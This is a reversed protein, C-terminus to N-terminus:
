RAKGYDLIKNFQWEMAEVHDDPRTIVRGQNARVDQITEKQGEIGGETWRKVLSVHFTNKVKFNDPLALTVAHSSAKTVVFPGEWRPTLKAAPRGTAMNKTDLMVSDGVRYAPADERYANANAEYRDQAQRSLAMVVDLVAKFRNAIETAKFFERKQAESVEPPCPPQPEIGMRPNFGYNAFFPSAGITESVANNGAFEAIPLWSAWDDQAWNVYLRLFQEL